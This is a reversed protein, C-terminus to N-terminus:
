ERIITFHGDNELKIIRSPKVSRVRDHFINVVYDVSKRIEESVDNFTIPSPEGSINASTSVVPKGFRRIMETCYEGKVIRIAITNDEPVLNKALNRANQYIITLPCNTSEILDYVIFPVDEVYDEIKQADELLIIMSKEQERKKIQYIKDVAKANTADCGIGWITDTPYLITKGENLAKVSNEIEQELLKDM